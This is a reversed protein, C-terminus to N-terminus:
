DIHCQEFSFDGALLGPLMGSYPTDVYESILTIRLGPIPHMAFMKLAIAHSHGGGIFVLDIIPINSTQM